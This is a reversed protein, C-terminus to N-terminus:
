ARGEGGIFTAFVLPRAQARSLGPFIQMAGLTLATQMLGRRSFRRM